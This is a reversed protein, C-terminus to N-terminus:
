TATEKERQVSAPEPAICHVTQGDFERAAPFREACESEAKWCRTRFPCGSPPQRATPVSGELIIRERSGTLMPSSSLLARTYPHRPSDHLPRTPGAEVVHGLYMVIVRDAVYSVAQINHSIFLIAVRLRDRLDLLLNLIQNQTSADLASTPEDAVILAPSLALARAVAIRQRQGGSLASPRLPLVSDPLGVLEVLERVRTAREARTGIGHVILPGALIDRVALRPNLSSGPDQFVAGVSRAIGRRRERTRQAWIDTDGLRVIGDTPPQLGLMARALTSKGCGSEGVLGIIEGPTIALSVDCLAAIRESRRLRYEVSVRDLEMIPPAVSV